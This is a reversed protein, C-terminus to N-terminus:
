ILLCSISTVKRPKSVELTLDFNVIYDQCRTIQVSLFAATREGISRNGPSPSELSCIRTQPQHKTNGEQITSDHIEEFYTQVVRDM